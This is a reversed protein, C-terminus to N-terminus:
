SLNRHPRYLNLGFKSCNEMLISIFINLDDIKRPNELIAKAMIQCRLQGFSRNSKPDEAWSIGKLLRKTLPPRTHRLWPLLKQHISLLYRRIEKFSDLPLYAVAVDSRDFGEADAMIKFASPKGNNVIKSWQRVLPVAGGVDLNWYIRLLSKLHHPDFNPSHLHWFGDALYYRKSSVKLMDEPKPFKGPHNEIFYETPSLVRLQDKRVAEVSFDPFVKQVQWGSEFTDNPNYLAAQYLLPLPQQPLDVTNKTNKQKDEQSLKSYWNQYLWNELWVPDNKLVEVQFDQSKLVNQLKRLDARVWQPFVHKM